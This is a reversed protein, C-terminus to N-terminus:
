PTGLAPLGRLLAALFAAADADVVEVNKQVWYQQAMRSPSRQVAYARRVHRGLARVVEHYLRRFDEDTLGFGMFLLTRTAFLSRVFNTMQPLRHFVDYFDDSTIVLTDPQSISGHLKILAPSNGDHYALDADHVAVRLSKRSARYAQEILDDWNTTVIVDFPLQAILEHTPLPSPSASQVRQVVYELLSQTGREVAYAQAVEPLPMCPIDGLQARQALERALEAGSPLGGPSLSIGAGCFLVVNGRGLQEQLEVPINM